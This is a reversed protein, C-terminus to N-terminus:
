STAHLAYSILRPQIEATDRAALAVERGVFESVIRPLQEAAPVASGGDYMATHLLSVISGEVILMSVAHEVKGPILEQLAWSGGLDAESARARELRNLADEACTLLISEM